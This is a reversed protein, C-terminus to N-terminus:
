IHWDGLCCSSNAPLMVARYHTRILSAMIPRYAASCATMFEEQPQLQLRYTSSCSPLPAVCDPNGSLGAALM